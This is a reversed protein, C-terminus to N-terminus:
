RFDVLEVEFILTAKAPIKGREAEGYALWYPVILTRKEGKRMELFAEDWGKIVEGVGLTFVLPRGREYSSDFKTGNLLRGEYQVTVSAGKMPMTGQGPARLVYMLGSPYHRANPYREEVIANDEGSLQPGDMAVRMAANIPRGPNKRALIGSRVVLAITILIVGLLGLVFFSRM